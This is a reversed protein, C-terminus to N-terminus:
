VDMKKCEPEYHVIVEVTDTEKLLCEEVREAILHADVLSLSDAVEITLEIYHQIGHIRGRLQPVAVVGPVQSVMEVYKATVTADFGDSLQHAAEILLSYSSKLIVCGILISAISDVFYFHFMVFVLAIATLLSVLADGLNDYFIVKNAMSKTQKYIKWNVLASVVVVTAALLSVVVGLVNMEVIEPKFVKFVGQRIAEFGAFMMVVVAIISAIQEYRQHGYHHNEDYPKKAVRVGIFIIITAIVDSLSNLGDAMLAASQLLFGFTLKLSAAVSYMMFSLTIGLESKSIQRM